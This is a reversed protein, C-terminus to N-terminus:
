GTKRNILGVVLTTVIALDAFIITFNEGIKL